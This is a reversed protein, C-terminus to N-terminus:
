EAEWSGIQCHSFLKHPPLFPSSLFPCAMIILYSNHFKLRSIWLAGKGIGFRSDFGAYDELGEIGGFLEV